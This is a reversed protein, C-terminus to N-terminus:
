ELEVPGGGVSPELVRTKALPPGKSGLFERFADATDAGGLASDLKRDFAILSSLLPNSGEDAPAADDSPLKVVGRLEAGRETLGEVVGTSEALSPTVLYDVQYAEEPIGDRESKAGPGLFLGSAEYALAVGNELNVFIFGLEPAEWPLGGAGPAVLVAIPATGKEGELLARGGPGPALAALNRVLMTSMTEAAAASVVFNTKALNMRGITPAHLFEEKASTVIVYDVMEHVQEAKIESSDDLHPNILVKQGGMELLFSGKAGGLATVRLRSHLENM